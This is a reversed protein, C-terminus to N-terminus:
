YYFQIKIVCCGCLSVDTDQFYERLNQTGDAELIFGGSGWVTDFQTVNPYSFEKCLNQQNIKCPNEVKQNLISALYFDEPLLVFYDLLLENDVKIKVTWKGPNMVLPIGSVTVFSPEATPKFHVSPLEQENDNPNDPIIKINGYASDTNKNVYRLVMRYLSPKQIYLEYLIEKQLLSFVAYGKWSYNPFISEDYAYRVATGSPSRGDEVEYQYQYLTPFYHAQLPQKCTRGMVRSHCLCQGTTKDCVPSISGGIDCECDVCGFLNDERLNYTGDACETCGRAVVSPKCVCQGDESDCVGIGGLVGPTYCDCEECGDPNHANLNWYLPKCKDCIRGEVRNKCQCLEGAPVSGCGAFGAVM